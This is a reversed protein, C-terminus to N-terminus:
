VEKYELLRELGLSDAILKVVAEALQLLRLGATRQQHNVVAEM